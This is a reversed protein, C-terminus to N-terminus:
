FQISDYGESGTRRSVATAHSESKAENSAQRQMQPETLLRLDSLDEIAALDMRYALCFLSAESFGRAPKFYSSPGRSRFVTRWMMDAFHEEKRNHVPHLAGSLRSM